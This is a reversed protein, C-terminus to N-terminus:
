FRSANQVNGSNDEHHVSIRSSDNLEKIDVLNASQAFIQRNRLARLDSFHAFINVRVWKLVFHFSFM